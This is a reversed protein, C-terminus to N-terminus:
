TEALVTVTMTQNHLECMGSAAHPSIEGYSYFGIQPMHGGFSDRVVEVEDSIRQGLLLKRGICSILIALQDGATDLTAAEAALGAGDILNEFNGRMLQATYGEPVNGAFTMSQADEDVAVITRVVDNNSGAATSVRLPFLLASGPLNQAEDGLYTKYLKLAPEGDLEYLVNGQSRTVTRQPGFEDWGGVSGHGIAIHSGYLGLAAIQGSIPAADAGVLTTSFHSGDGAMGGTIPIRAPVVSNIGAVLESGNVRLGDSLLFVARLDPAKLAEGLEHGIRSSDDIGRAMTAALKLRTKDFRVAVAVVSDDFVDDNLIEGGTSCGLLHADPYRARLEGYREGSALIERAGFYLVLQPSALGGNSRSWRWGDPGTWRGQEIRMDFEDGQRM